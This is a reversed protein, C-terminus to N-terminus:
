LFNIISKLLLRFNCSTKCLMLFLLLFYKAIINVQKEEVLDDSSTTSRSNAQEYFEDVSASPTSSTKSDIGSGIIESVIRGDPITNRVIRM